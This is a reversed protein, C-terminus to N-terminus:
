EGSICWCFGRRTFFVGLEFWLDLFLISEYFDTGFATMPDLSLFVEYAACVCVFRVCQQVRVSEENGRCQDRETGTSFEKLTVLGRQNMLLSGHASFCFLPFTIVECLLKVFRTHPTHTHTHTHTERKRSSGAPLRDKFRLHRSTLLEVGLGRTM